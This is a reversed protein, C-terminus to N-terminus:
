NTRKPSSAAHAPVVPEKCWACVESLRFRSRDGVAKFRPLTITLRGLGACVMNTEFLLAPDTVTLLMATEPGNADVPLERGIVNVAPWLMGSLTVNVGLPEPVALPLMVIMLVAAFEGETTLRFPVPSEAEPASSKVIAGLLKFKPVATTLLGLGACVINTEFLLAPDTVTLLMATEPGNADVPLERGVVNLAPWLVGSLTVNLGLAEPVALPLKVIVLVAAFEGETTFRFPVPVEVEPGSAKVTAGALKFKPIAAALLGLGACVMNTEFLLAPDTVTLLIATEPGNAEVPLVKGIVNLTPWLMISLTVKVGVAEPAALPVKVIVLLAPLEGVCTVRVPFSAVQLM